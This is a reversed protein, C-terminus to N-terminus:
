KEQPRASNIAAVRSSGLKEVIPTLERVDDPSGLVHHEASGDCGWRGRVVQRAEEPLLPPNASWMRARAITARDVPNM